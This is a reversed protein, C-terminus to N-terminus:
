DWAEKLKKSLVEAYETIDAPYAFYGGKEIMAVIIDKTNEAIVALKENGTM